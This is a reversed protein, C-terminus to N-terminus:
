SILPPSMRKQREPLTISKVRVVGEQPNLLVASGRRMWWKSPNGPRWAVIDTIDDGDICPCVYYPGGSEHPTCLGCYHTMAQVVGVMPYDPLIGSAIEAPIGLGELSEIHKDSLAAVAATYEAMLNASM